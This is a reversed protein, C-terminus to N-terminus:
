FFDLDLNPNYCHHSDKKSANVWLMTITHVQWDYVKINTQIQPWLIVCNFGLYLFQAWFIDYM